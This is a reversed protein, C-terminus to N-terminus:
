LSSKVTGITIPTTYVYYAEKFLTQYDESKRLKLVIEDPTTNFEDKSLIVNMIQDNM